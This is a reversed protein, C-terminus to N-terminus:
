MNMPTIRLLIDGHVRDHRFNRSQLQYWNEGGREFDGKSLRVEGM